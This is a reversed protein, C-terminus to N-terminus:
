LKRKRKYSNHLYIYEVALHQYRPLSPWRIANRLPAQGRSLNPRQPICGQSRGKGDNDKQVRKLILGFRSVVLGQVEKGVGVIRRSQLETALYEHVLQPHRMTSLTNRITSIPVRERNFCILFGHHIGTSIYHTFLRDPHRLLAEAM